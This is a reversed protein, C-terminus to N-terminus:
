SGRAKPARELVVIPSGGYNTRAFESFGLKAAIHLSALHDPRIICTMRKGGHAHDAWALAAGMAEEAIGQGHVATSLVWGAELTDDLSPTIDRHLDHFGAVGAFSGTAKMEIAFTGFGLYRWMGMQRMFRSWAEDRALPVGGIFRVVEPERWMAAFAGFDALALGRLRLRPSELVPIDPLEM